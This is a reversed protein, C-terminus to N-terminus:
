FDEAWKNWFGAEDHHANKMAVRLPLNYYMIGDIKMDGNEYELHNNLTLYRKDNEDMPIDIY